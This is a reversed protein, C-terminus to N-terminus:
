RQVTEITEVRGGVITLVTYRDGTQYTWQEVMLKQKYSSAREWRYGIVEKLVPEGCTMLVKIKHTGESILRGGPCRMDAMALVPLLATIIIIGALMRKM